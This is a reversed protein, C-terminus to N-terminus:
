KTGGVAPNFGALRLKDHPMVVDYHPIYEATIEIFIDALLLDQQIDDIIGSRTRYHYEVITELGHFIEFVGQRSYQIVETILAIAEFTQIFKRLAVFLLWDFM